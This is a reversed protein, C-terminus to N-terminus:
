VGSKEKIWKRVSAVRSYVGPYNPRACGYGWSVVGVLKNDYVLPGGSDGQCADKGGQEYGACIMRETVGGFDKYAQSCKEQNVAPVKASRLWANSENSSQTNGWGTVTCEGDDPVVEDQEPLGIKNEEDNFSLKDKLKLISFDYDINSYSFKEHQLIKDVQILRGGNCHQSSGVRVKFNKANGGSFSFM